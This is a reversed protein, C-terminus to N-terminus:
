AEGAEMGYFIRFASSFLDRLDDDDKHQTGTLRRFEEATVSGKLAAEAMQERLAQRDAPSLRRVADRM